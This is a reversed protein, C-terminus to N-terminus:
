QILRAQATFLDRFQLTEEITSQQYIPKASTHAGIPYKINTPGVRRVVIRFFYHPRSSFRGWHLRSRDAIAAAVEIM